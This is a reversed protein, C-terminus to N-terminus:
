LSSTSKHVGIRTRPHQENQICEAALYVRWVMNRNGTKLKDPRTAANGPAPFSKQM